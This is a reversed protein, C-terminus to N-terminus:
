GDKTEADEKSKTQGDSVVEFHTPIPNLAESARTTQDTQKNTTQESPNNRLRQWFSTQVEGQADIHKRVAEGDLKDLLTVGQEHTAILLYEGAAEVVWLGKKPELSLRERITLLGTYMATSMGAKQAAWRMIVFILIVVVGLAFVMGFAQFWFFSRETFKKFGPPNKLANSPKKPPEKSSPLSHGKAFPNRPPTKSLGVKQAGSKKEAGSYLWLPKIAKKLEKLSIPKTPDEKGKPAPRSTVQKKPKQHKTSITKKKTSTTKQATKQEKATRASPKQAFSSPTALLCGLLLLLLGVGFIRSSLRKSHNTM